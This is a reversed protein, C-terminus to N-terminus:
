LNIMFEYFSDFFEEFVDNIVCHFENFDNIFKLIIFIYLLYLIWMSSRKQKPIGRVIFCEHDPFTKSFLCTRRSLSQLSDLIFIKRENKILIILIWHGARDVGSFEPYIFM